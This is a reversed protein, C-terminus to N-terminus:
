TEPEAESPIDVDHTFISRQRWQDGYRLVFVPVPALGLSIAGLCTFGLGYGLSVVLPEIVLPFFTSMLCRTVIVGTMASASYLGFADVVYASLPIIVLILTFGLMIVSVLLLAVPLRLHAIWGYATVTVPMTFAGIIALPLRYEPKGTTKCTVRLKVYIRDLGANCLLVGIFSGFSCCLFAAGIHAPSFYYISELIAPLSISIVYYYSFTVSGFLSMVLLVGSGFLVDFPRSISAWIEVKDKQNSTPLTRGLLKAARRRLISTKYTERFCILFMLECVGALGAAVFLVQRWGLTETIAGSIAPGIAGGILPAIMLLSMASGRHDSEFMDGIIAPNLVNSAVTIGTLARAAILFSTSQSLAAMLTCIIFLVNCVNLVPYRGFLESLPATLLPGAAEGFEWITVLLASAASHPQLDKDLDKVIRGAIPVVSICTFAVTFAMCALLFVMAWKFTAPWQRPDDLDGNPNFELIVDDYAVGNKIDEPIPCLLPQQEAETM